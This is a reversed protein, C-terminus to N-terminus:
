AGLIEIIANFVDEMDQTGDVENLVGKGNYYDILPQTVCAPTAYFDNLERERDSHNSVGNCVYASNLGRLTKEGM